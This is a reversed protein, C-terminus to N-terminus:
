CLKLNKKDFKIVKTQSYLLLLLLLLLINAFFTTTIGVYYDIVIIILLCGYIPVDYGACILLADVNHICM